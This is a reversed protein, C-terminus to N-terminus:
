ILPKNALESILRARAEPVPKDGLSAALHASLFHGTTQLGAQIQALPAPAIGRLADPLPLLRAAWAGAGERSVARGTRPSVYELEESAGTVACASLDLGFGMESLLAREWLLYALPWSEHDELLDLLQISHRYLVPHPAREPLCFALLATVASLGALALRSSFAAAARSRLPEVQFTGIHEELRARWTLDLQAGPQLIPGLKRSKAGRVVGLHRGQTETFVEIIASTEGHDRLCLLVGDERWGIM